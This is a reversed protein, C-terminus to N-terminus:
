ADEDAPIDYKYRLNGEEDWYQDNMLVKCDAWNPHKDLREISIYEDDEPNICRFAAWANPSNAIQNLECCETSARQLNLFRRGRWQANLGLWNGEASPYYALRMAVGEVWLRKISMEVVMGEKCYDGEYTIPRKYTYRKGEPQEVVPAPAKAKPKASAKAPTHRVPTDRVIPQAEATQDRYQQNGIIGKLSAVMDKMDDKADQLQLKLEAVEAQLKAITAYALGYVQEESMEKNEAVPTDDEDDGFIDSGTISEQESAVSEEEEKKREEEERICEDCVMNGYVETYHKDMLIRGCDNCLEEEEEEEEEEADPASARKCECPSCLDHRNLTDTKFLEACGHCEETDNEYCDDCWVQENDMTHGDEETMDCGCNSCETKDEEADTEADAPADRDNSGMATLEDREKAHDIKDDRVFRWVYIENYLQDKTLGSLFKVTPYNTRLWAYLEKNTMKGFEAKIADKCVKMQENSYNM